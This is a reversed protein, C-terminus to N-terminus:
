VYTETDVLAFVIGDKDNTLYVNADKINANDTTLYKYDSSNYRSHLLNILKEPGDSNSIWYVGKTSRSNKLMSFLRSDDPQAKVNSNNIAIKSEIDTFSFNTESAGNEFSKSFVKIEKIHDTNGTLLSGCIDNGIQKILDLRVSQKLLNYTGKSTIYNWKDFSPTYVTIDCIPLKRQSDVNINIVNRQKVADNQTCIAINDVLMQLQIKASELINDGLKDTKDLERHWLNENKIPILVVNKSMSSKRFVFYAFLYSNCESGGSWIWETGHRYAMDGTIGDNLRISTLLVGMQKTGLMGEISAALTNNISHYDEWVIGEKVSDYSLKNPWSGLLCYQYKVYENAWEDGGEFYVHMVPVETIYEIGALTEHTFLKEYSINLSDGFVSKIETNLVGSTLDTRKYSSTDTEIYSKTEINIGPTGDWLPGDLVHTDHKVNIKLDYQKGKILLDTQNKIEQWSESDFLGKDNERYNLNWLNQLDKNTFEKQDILLKSDFTFNCFDSGPRTTYDMEWTKTKISNKYKEVWKDFSIKSFDSYEGVFDSFIESAIVLKKTVSTIKNLEEITANIKHFAFGIVYIAEKKFDGDFPLIGVGQNTIGTYNEVARWNLIEKGEIDWIKYYLQVSSKTVYPGTVDYELYLETDIDDIYFKWLESGIVFDDYSGVTNLFISRSEVFSDYFLIRSTEETTIKIFPTATISITDGLKLGDLHEKWDIWLIKSDSYWDIFKGSKISPGNEVEGSIYFTKEVNKEETSFVLNIGIDSKIELENESTPLFLKDSIRFQFNLNIDCDIEVGASLSPAVISRLSMAFDDFTGLRYQAALWGPVQWAVPHPKGDIKILDNINHKQRDDDIIFYELAEYKYPSPNTENISYKDGPYLKSEEEDDSTWIQMECKEVLESYKAKEVIQELVSNIELSTDNDKSDTVELPSPYSGIEVCNDLPNYSVIYLIDGYEKLGVPIYNPKLRCNKLPYNGRDNQLSYENGDYTIITANLADTLVTNPTNIPNLDCVLGETFQNSSEKRM